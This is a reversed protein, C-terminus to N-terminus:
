CSFLPVIYICHRCSWCPSTSEMEIMKVINVQHQNLHRHLCSHPPVIFVCHRSLTPWCQSKSLTLSTLLINILCYFYSSFQHQCANCYRCHRRHLCSTLTCNLCSKININALMAIYTIDLIYFHYLPYSVVSICYLCLFM